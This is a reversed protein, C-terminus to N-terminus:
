IETPLYGRQILGEYARRAQTRDRFVATVMEKNAMISRRAAMARLSAVARGHDSPNGGFCSLTQNDPPLVLCGGHRGQRIDPLPEPFPPQRVNERPPFSAIRWVPDAKGVARADGHADGDKRNGM